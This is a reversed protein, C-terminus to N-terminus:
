TGEIVVTTALDSAGAPQALADGVISGSVIVLGGSDIGAAESGALPSATGVERSGDGSLDVTFLDSGTRVGSGYGQLVRVLNPDPLTSDIRLDGAGADLNSRTFVLLHGAESRGLPSANPVAVALEDGPLGDANGLWAVAVPDVDITQAANSGDDSIASGETATAFDLSREATTGFTAALTSGYVVSAVRTVGANGTHGMALDPLGDADADGDTALSDIAVDVVSAEVVRPDNTDSAINVTDQVGKAGAILAGDIVFAGSQFSPELGEGSVVIEPVTDSTLDAMVAVHRGIQQFVASPLESRITVLATSPASEVDVSGAASALGDGFLVLVRGQSPLGLIVDSRGDGDIDGGTGSLGVAAQRLAGGIAVGDAPALSTLAVTDTTGRVLASGWVLYALPGNDEAELMGNRTEKMLVLLDDRGDNDVDGVNVGSLRSRRVTQFIDDGTIRVRADAGLDAILVDSGGGALADRLAGGWLLYATELGSQDTAETVFVEDVGDGDIDGVSSAATGLPSGSGRGTLRVAEGIRSPLDVLRLAVSGFGENTGDSASVGIRIVDQTGEVEADFPIVVSLAGSDPDLSFADLLRQANVPEGLKSVETIRYNGVTGGEPDTAAFTVIVGTANEELPTEAVPAFEPGEDVDTISVTITATVTNTGDSLQVRQEYVNDSNGDRPDEFNFAGNPTNATVIGTNPDVTFLAGDGGPLDSITVTASDPDTVELTFIVQENESFQFTTPSRFSPPQNSTDGGGSGGGGGGGCAALLCVCVVMSSWETAKGINLM